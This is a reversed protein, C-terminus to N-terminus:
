NLLHGPGPRRCYIHNANYNTLDHDYTLDIERQKKWVNQKLNGGIYVHLCKSMELMRQVHVGDKKSLSWVM